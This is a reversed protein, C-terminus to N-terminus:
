SADYRAQQGQGDGGKGAGGGLCVGELIDQLFARHADGRREVHRRHARLVFLALGFTEVDFGEAERKENQSGMPPVDLPTAIRVAGKKLIDEFADAKAATGTFAAVSLSLLGAIIRRM